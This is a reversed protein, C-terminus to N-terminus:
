QISIKSDASYVAPQGEAVVVAMTFPVEPGGIMDAPIEVTVEYVGIMNVAYEASVVRVGRAGIGVIVPLWVQQGPFGPLNTASLPLVSGLGTTYFRFTGGKRAPTATTVLTGDPNVAVAYRKGDAATTEFIGPMAALVPVRDVVTTSAGVKVYVTVAFGPAMDFPAQVIVQEQGSVNCVAYIPARTSGFTIEVGAVTTPLPGVVTGPGMCGQIGSALGSAVIATVAGPVLGQRYSAGNVFSSISLVPGPLRSTLNFAASANGSTATITVAGATAGATVNVSARGLTNTTVAAASLTASGSSVAFAVPADALPRGQEDRVEVELPASFAQGTIATQPDGSIKVVSGVNVTVRVTFQAFVDPATAARVRVILDGPRTGLKVTTSVRGSVDTWQTADLLRAGTGQTGFEWLVPVSMLTNANADTLEAILPQPLTQGPNGSQGTGQIVKFLAPIGPQVNFTIGGPPFLWSGVYVTLTGEGTRRGFTMDCNAYGNSDTLINLNTCTAVPGVTPDQNGTVELGVNPIRAGTSSSAVLQVAGPLTQGSQGDIRGTTPSVIQPIFQMPIGGILPLITLYFTVSGVYSSALITAQSYPSGIGSSSGVVTIFSQGNADTQTLTSSLLAQTVSTVTWTVSTGAIPLGFQDKLSVILPRPAPPSAASVVQGNGSVIQMGVAPGIPTGGGVNITFSVYVGGVTATVPIISQSPSGLVVTAQAFGEWGTITSASTITVGAVYTTFVVPAGYVPRGAGDVARIVLPLSTGGTAVSQSNNYQLLSAIPGGSAAGVYGIAGPTFGLPGQTGNVWNITLDIRYVINQAAVFLYRAQPAENSKAMATVSNNAGGLAYTENIGLPDIIVDYLKQAQSIAHARGSSSVVVSTLTVGTLVGQAPLISVSKNRLDLRYLLSGSLTATLNVAVGYNGDPTFAMKGPRGTVGVEGGTRLLMTRGDIEVIRGDGTVYVLGNPAVAVGTTPFTPLPYVGVATNTILDVAFLRQLTVSLVFARSGDLSVAVDHVAGGLDVAAMETDTTTNIIRLASGAVVLLRSGDPSLAAAEPASALTIRQVVVFASNTVVVADTSSRGVIYYKTGGPTALSLFAVPSAQLTAAATFPDASYVNTSNSGGSPMVFVNRAQVQAVLLACLGVWFLVKKIAM